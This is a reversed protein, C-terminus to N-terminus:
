EVTLRFLESMESELGYTDLATVGFYYTGPALETILASTEGAGTTM